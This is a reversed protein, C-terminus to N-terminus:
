KLNIYLITQEPNDADTKWSFYDIEADHYKLIKDEFWQGNALVTRLDELIRITTKDNVIETINLVDKITM